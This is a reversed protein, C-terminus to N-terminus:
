NPDHTAQTGNYVLNHVTCYSHTTQKGHKCQTRGSCVNCQKVEVHPCYDISGSPCIYSPLRDTHGCCYIQHQNGCSRLSFYRNQYAIGCFDCVKPTSFYEDTIYHLPKGCRAEIAGDGGCTDCPVHVDFTNCTSLACLTM